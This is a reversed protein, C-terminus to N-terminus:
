MNMHDIGHVLAGGLWGQALLVLTTLGLIWVMARSNVSSARRWAWLAVIAGVVALATGTWRHWLLIPDSDALAFGGNLWGLLGAGVASVGAIVILSRIVDVADGRRRAIILALWGIPFLAIPFHVAFPHVRGVWDMLRGPWAKPQGNEMEQTHEEIMEQMPGSSNTRPQETGDAQETEEATDHERHAVGPASITVLLAVCLATLIRRFTLVM